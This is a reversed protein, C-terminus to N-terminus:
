SKPAQVDRARAEEWESAALLRMCLRCGFCPCRRQNAIHAVALNDMDRDLTFEVGPRVHVWSAHNM